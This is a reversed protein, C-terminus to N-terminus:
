KVGIWLLYADRDSRGFSLCLEDGHWDLGACFEVGAGFFYFPPSVDVPEFAASVRVFAHEYIATPWTGRHRHVVCLYGDRYPVVQSSGSWNEPLGEHETVVSFDTLDYVVWPRTSYVAYLRGDEVFPMWNKERLKDTHLAQVELPRDLDPMLVMTNRMVTRHRVTNHFLGSFLAARRGVFSFMRGDELGNRFVASHIHRDVIETREGTDLNYIYNVTDPYFAVGKVPVEGTRILM